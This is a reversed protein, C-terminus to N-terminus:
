IKTLTLNISYRKFNEITEITNKYHITNIGLYEAAKINDMRDDIFIVQNAQSNLKELAIEFIKSDPKRVKEICSFILVNFVEYNLEKFYKYAPIETNSLISTIFGQKKLEAALEFMKIKPSYVSRFAEGWLSNTKPVQLNLDACIQQWFIEESIEAIQFKPLYKNLTNVFIQTSVSLKNACYSVIAEAPNDILVGGWDFSIAKIKSM